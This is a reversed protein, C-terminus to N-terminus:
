QDPPGAADHARPRATVRSRSATGRTAPGTPQGDRTRQRGLPGVPKRRARHGLSRRGIVVAAARHGDVARDSSQLPRLWHQKGWRSTYAPDVAIVSLGATAAMGVLRTRFRATPIGAVTRRFRKGRKGRGMTERGTARADAFGLNEISISACGHKTALHLLRTIVHRVQADRHGTTGTISFDLRQPTGIVNGHADIVTVGLHGDNLDVGLTRRTQLVTLPVAPVEQGYSWSADLYWRGRHDRHLDYRVCKRTAIREAWEEGRHTSLSVAATIMLREGAHSALAAPVKIDLIGEATVRITENGYKKGSEGDATLFMRGDTWRSEWQARTMGAQDLHQRNRWLRGGGVVIRPRGTERRRLAEALRAELQAKRRSKQFREAETRYGKVPRARPRDPDRVEDGVPVALRAAITCIAATLSDIHASLGRMGLDYSDMATRTIAGAWRSSAGATLANKRERHWDAQEKSTVVGLAIRDALAARYQGGLFVGIREIAAEEGDTLHVRTRTRVGRPPAVVFPDALMRLGSKARGQKTM